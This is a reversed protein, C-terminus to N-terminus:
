KLAMEMEDYHHLLAEDRSWFGDYCMPCWRGGRSHGSCFPCRVRTAKRVQQLRGWAKRASRWWAEAEGPTMLGAKRRLVDLPCEIAKANAVALDFSEFVGLLRDDHWPINGWLQVREILKGDPGTVGVPTTYCVVVRDPAALCAILAAVGLAVALLLLLGVVFFPKDDINVPRRRREEIETCYQAYCTTYPGNHMLVYPANSLKISAGEDIGRGCRGCVERADEPSSRYPVAPESM